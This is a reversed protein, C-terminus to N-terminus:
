FSGELIIAGYINRPILLSSAPENRGSLKDCGFSGQCRAARTGTSGRLGVPVERQLFVLQRRFSFLYMAPLQCTFFRFHLQKEEWILISCRAARNYKSNLLKTRNGYYGLLPM